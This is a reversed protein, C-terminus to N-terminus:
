ASSCSTRSFSRMAARSFPRAARATLEPMAADIIAFYTAGDTLNSVTRATANGVDIQGSYNRSSTGYYVKYGVLRPDSVADWALSLSGAFASASCAVTLLLLVLQRALAHM